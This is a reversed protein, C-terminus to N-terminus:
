GADAVRPRRRGRASGDAEGLRGEGAGQGLRLAFRKYVSNWSGFEDPLLRWPAGARAMWLVAEVFLRTSSEQGVYIGPHAQLCVWVRRWADNSFRAGAM